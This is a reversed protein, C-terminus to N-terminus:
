LASPRQRLVRAVRVLRGAPIRPLSAQELHQALDLRRRELPMALPQEPPVAERPYLHGPARAIAPDVPRADEPQVQQREM